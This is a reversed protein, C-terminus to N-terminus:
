PRTAFDWLRSKPFFGTTIGHGLLTRLLATEPPRVDELAAATTQADYEVLTAVPKVFQALSAFTDADIADAEPRGLWAAVV